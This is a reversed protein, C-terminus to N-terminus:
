HWGGGGAVAGESAGQIWPGIKGEPVESKGLHSFVELGGVQGYGSAKGTLFDLVESKCLKLPSSEAADQPPFTCRAGDARLPLQAGAHVLWRRPFRM